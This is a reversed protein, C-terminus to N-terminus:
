RERCAFNQQKWNASVNEGGAPGTYVAQQPFPCLKREDTIPGPTNDDRVSSRHVAVISDPAVGEEVWKVLAPLKDWENPGPGGGCHGMGPVMFLRADKQAEPYSGDFTKQVVQQYYAVISEPLADGDSWGQYMLLKGKRQKLFRNLDPDVADMYHQVFQAKGATIDDFNFEWWAYEPFIGGKYPADGVSHIENPPLGPSDEYILFNAHDLEYILNTPLFQNGGWPIVNKPWQVESGFSPGYFIKTGKSDHPGAYIAEITHLQAKTFCNDANKDAPCAYQKLDEAPKFDCQRPDNIVGDKIGDKADCKALVADHLIDVKKLDKFSGDGDKDFALNGAAHNELLHKETWIHAVNLKTFDIAPSGIVIGDFDAPYRQAELMGQRGGTSCGEFYVHKQPKGYFALTLAKSANATVHIARYAYDFFEQKNNFAFSSNPEAGNDHGTNNSVVAYGQALRNFAFQFNGAKGGNGINLLRGNWTDGLPLQAQWHIAPAILGYVQCYAPLKGSAAVTEASLITLNPTGILSHCAESSAPAPTAPQAM